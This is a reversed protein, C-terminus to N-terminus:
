EATCLEPFFLDLTASEKHLVKVLYIVTGSDVLSTLEVPSCLSLRGLGQAELIMQFVHAPTSHSAPFWSACLVSEFSLSQLLLLSM